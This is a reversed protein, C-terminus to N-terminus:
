QRRRRWGAGALGVLGSGLLLLTGPEPVTSPVTQPHPGVHQIPGPFFGGATFPPDGSPLLFMTGEAPYGPPATHSWTSSSSCLTHDNCAATTEHTFMTFLPDSGGAPVFAIKTFVDFFSDFTGGGADHTLVDIEGISPNLKGGNANLRSDLTVFVDFFSETFDTNPINVPGASKLSLAVIEAQITGTGTDGALGTHRQVITDTNGINPDWPNSVFPVLGFGLNLSVTGPPTTFLDYGPNIEAASARTSVGFGIGVVVACALMLTSWARLTGVKKM